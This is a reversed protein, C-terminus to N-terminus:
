AFGGAQAYALAQEPTLENQFLILEDITFAPTGAYAQPDLSGWNWIMDGGVSINRNTLTSFDAPEAQLVGDVYFRLYCEASSPYREVWTVCLLHPSGDQLLDLGPVTQLNVGNADRHMLNIHGQADLVLCFSVRNYSYEDPPRDGVAVLGGPASEPPISVACMLAGSISVDLGSTTQMMYVTPQKLLIATGGNGVLSPQGLEFNQGSTGSILLPIQGFGSDDLYDGETEDMKWWCMPSAQEVLDDWAGSAGSAGSPTVNDLVLANHSADDPFCVLFHPGLDGALKFKGPDVIVAGEEDVLEGAVMEDVLRGDSRRFAAVRFNAPFGDTGLVEGAFLAARDQWPRAIPSLAGELPYRAFRTVRLESLYGVMGNAHSSSAGLYLDGERLGGAWYASAGANDGEKLLYLDDWENRVLAIHMARDLSFFSPLTMTGGQSNAIVASGDPGVNVECGSYHLLTAGYQRLMVTMEITFPEEDVPFGTGPLVIVGTGDLAVGKCRGLDVMSVGGFALGSEQTIVNTLTPFDDLHVVACLKDFYPDYM